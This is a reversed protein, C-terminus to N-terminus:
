VSLEVVKRGMFFLAMLLTFWFPMEPFFEEVPYKDHLM